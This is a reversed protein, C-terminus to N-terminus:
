EQNEVVATEISVDQNNANSSNNDRREGITTTESQTVMIVQGDETTPLQTEQLYSSSNSRDYTEKSTKYSKEAQNLIKVKNQWDNYANSRRSSYEESSEGASQGEEVINKYREEAISVAQQKAVLDDHRKADKINDLLGLKGSQAKLRAENVNSHFEAEVGRRQKSNNMGTELEVDQWAQNLSEAAANHYGNHMAKIGQSISGRVGKGTMLGTLLGQGLGIAASGVSGVFSGDEENIGFFKNIYRPSKYIMFLIGVILFSKLFLLREPTIGTGEATEWSIFMNNDIIEEAFYILLYIAGLKIFLDLFTVLVEKLWKNFPNQNVDRNPTINNMVPIPAIMELVMLKFIRSAVSVTIGALLGVSIFGVLSALLYRYQYSYGATNKAVGVPSVDNVHTVFDKLNTIEKSGDISPYERSPDAYIPHFYPQLITVAVGESKKSIDKQATEQDQNLVIKPIIPIAVSQVRYLLDFMSPLMLLLVLMEITRLVLKKTGQKEDNMLDPNVMYNIFTGSLKFFMFIGLLVYLKDRVESIIDINNRLSALDFIGQIIWEISSYLFYDLNAFTNRIVNIARHGHFYVSEEQAGKGLVQSSTYLDGDNFLLYAKGSYVDMSELEKEEKFKPYYTKIYKGKATFTYIVSHKNPIKEFIKKGTQNQSTYYIIQNYYAADQEADYIDAGFTSEVNYTDSDVIKGDSDIIILKNTNDNYAIAHGSASGLDVIKEQEFTNPNIIVLKKHDSDLVLLKDRYKDYTMANTHYTDYYAAHEVSYTAKNLFFIAGKNGSTHGGVVLYKETFTMSQFGDLTISNSKKSINTIKNLDTLETVDKSKIDKLDNKVDVALCFIPMLFVVLIFLNLILRKKM